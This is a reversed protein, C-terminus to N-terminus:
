RGLSRFVSHYDNAHAVLASYDLKKTETLHNFARSSADIQDDHKGFPFNRLEQVYANNWEARVMGVNGVNMQSAFPEARTVKDGSELSSVVRFGSLAKTLYFVASKGAAGPDQPLSITVSKGDRQANTVVMREVAEPSGQLTDVDEVIYKGNGTVGMLLGVTPDGDNHTAGLDYARVKRKVDRASADYSLSREDFFGGEGPTPRQQYQGSFTYPMAKEMRRLEAVSHKDAWLATGDPQLAPLCILKWSEGSGGALLWGALDEEHLRQMILIIPTKPDNTRSQLTSKYWEIVGNRVKDSRAETPKIPDDIIIAGGFGERMAGAGFGTITGETSSAYVGGGNLIHWKHRASSTTNIMTEPFVGHYFESRVMERTEWSNQEALESSYSTMIFNSHRSKGLSWAVFSKCLHTKSYRPPINIILRKCQGNFVEELANCILEHHAARQWLAGTLHIFMYRTFYYLNNSAM